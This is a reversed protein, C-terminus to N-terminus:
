AQEPFTPLGVELENLSQTLAHMAQAEAEHVIFINCPSEGDTGFKVEKMAGEIAAGLIAIASPKYCVPV